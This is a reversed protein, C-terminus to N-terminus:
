LHSVFSPFLFATEKKRMSLERGGYATMEREREKKKKGGEEAVTTAAVIARRFVSTAVRARADELATRGTRSPVSAIANIAMGAAVGGVLRVTALRAADINRGTLGSFRGCERSNM